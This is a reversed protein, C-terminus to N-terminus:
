SPEAYRNEEETLTGVKIHGDWFCAGFEFGLEDGHDAKVFSPRYDKCISPWHQFEYVPLAADRYSAVEIFPVMMFLDGLM